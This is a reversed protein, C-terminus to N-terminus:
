HSKVLEVAKSSNRFKQKLGCAEKHSASDSMSSSKTAHFLRMV